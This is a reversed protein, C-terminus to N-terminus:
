GGYVWNDAELVYSCIEDEAFFLGIERSASESSDSAHVVNNGTFLALDGRISGPAAAVPDTEGVLKRVVGIAQDGEWVMAIVPGSTIFAILSDYFGKGRHEEYHRAALGPSLQMMKLAVLKLGKKELRKIIEGVLLRQVADPKIMVFTREKAHVLKGGELNLQGKIM